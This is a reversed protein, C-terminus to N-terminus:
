INTVGRIAAYLFVSQPVIADYRQDNFFFM